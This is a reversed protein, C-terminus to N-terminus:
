QVDPVQVRHGKRARRAEGRKSQHKEFRTKCILGWGTLTERAHNDLDFKAAERLSLSKYKTGTGQETTKTTATEEAFEM